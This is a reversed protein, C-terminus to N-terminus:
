IELPNISTVYSTVNYMSTDEPVTDPTMKFPDKIPNVPGQLLDAPEAASNCILM